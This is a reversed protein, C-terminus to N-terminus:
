CFLKYPHQSLETLIAVLSSFRTRNGSPTHIKEEGVRGSRRQPAVLRVTVNTRRVITWPKFRGPRSASWQCGDLAIKHIHSAAEVEGYTNIHYHKILM